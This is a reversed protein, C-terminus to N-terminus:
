VSRMQQALLKKGQLSLQEAIHSRMNASKNQSLKFRGELGVISVSFVTIAKLMHNIATSSASDLTWPQAQYQEFHASTLAMQQYKDAPATIATACGTVHVKIYNWSPVMQGEREDIPVFNPSVYGSEGHFILSIDVGDNSTSAANLKAALPHDNSVHAVIVDNNVAFHCPIHSIHPMQETDIFVLTALPDQSIVCFLLDLDQDRSQFHKAPYM